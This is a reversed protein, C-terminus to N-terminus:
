AALDRLEYMPLSFVLQGSEDEVEISHDQRLQPPEVAGIWERATRFAHYWAAEQDPLSAGDPDPLGLGGDHVHFYFLPM